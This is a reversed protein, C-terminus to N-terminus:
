ISQVLKELVSIGRSRSIKERNGKLKFKQHFVDMIRNIATMQLMALLNDTYHRCLIKARM